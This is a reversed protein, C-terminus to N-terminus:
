LGKLPVLDFLDVWGVGDDSTGYDYGLGGDVKSIFVYQGLSKCYYWFGPIIM